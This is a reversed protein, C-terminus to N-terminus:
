ENDKRNLIQLGKARNVTRWLEEYRAEPLVQKLEFRFDNEYTTITFDFPGSSSVSDIDGIRWTRSQGDTTTRFVVRDRGVLIVGQFGGTAHLLKAPIQWEPQAPGEALAAVFRQDLRRSFLPYLQDALDKPLEDFVFERDRGPQWRQDEYTQIRLMKQGLTLQRIDEFKWERSHAKHKGPEEFVISDSEVRLIGEAGNRIHRHRVRFRLPNAPSLAQGVALAPLWILLAIAQAKIRFAMEM